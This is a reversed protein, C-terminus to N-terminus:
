SRRLLLCYMAPQFNSEDLVIGTDFIEGFFGKVAKLFQFGQLSVAMLTPCGTKSFYLKVSSPLPSFFFVKTFFYLLFQDNMALHASGEEDAQRAGMSFSNGDTFRSGQGSSEVRSQLYQLLQARLCHLNGLQLCQAM